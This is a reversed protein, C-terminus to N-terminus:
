CSTRSHGPEPFASTVLVWKSQQQGPEALGETGGRTRVEVGDEVTESGVDLKPPSGWVGNRIQGAGKGGEMEAVAKAQLDM